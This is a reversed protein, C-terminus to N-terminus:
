WALGRLLLDAIGDSTEAGCSEAHGDALTPELALHGLALGVADRAVADPAADDRFYGLGQGRAVITSIRAMLDAVVARALDGANDIQTADLLILKVLHPREALFTFISTIERRLEQTTHPTRCLPEKGSHTQLEDKAQRMITQHLGSKSGFYYFVLQKNVQARDAIRQVRAGALGHEAFEIQAAHVIRSRSNRRSPLNVWGTPQNALRAM